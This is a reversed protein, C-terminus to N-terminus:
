SLCRRLVVARVALHPAATPFWQGNLRGRWVARVPRWMAADEVNACHQNTVERHKTALRRNVPASAQEAVSDACVEEM